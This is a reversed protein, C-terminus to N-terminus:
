ALAKQGAPIGSALSALVAAASAVEGRERLHEIQPRPLCSRRFEDELEGRNALDAWRRWHWAFGEPLGEQLRFMDRVHGIKRAFRPYTSLAAHALVIDRSMVRRDDCGPKLTASHTGAHLAELMHPRVALKPAPVLKLWYDTPGLPPRHGALPTLYLDLKAYDDQSPPLPVPLGREGLVMNHRPIRLLNAEVRSLARKLDGGVVLPFEDADLILTWDAKSQGIAAANRRRWDEVPEAVSSDIVRFDAGEHECLFERTGDESGLDCVIFEDVGLRRLQDVCPGILEIEDLVGIHAALRLQSEEM